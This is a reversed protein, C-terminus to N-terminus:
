NNDSPAFDATEGLGEAVYDAVVRNGAEKQLARLARANGFINKAICQTVYENGDAWAAKADASWQKIEGNIRNIRKAIQRDTLSNINTM